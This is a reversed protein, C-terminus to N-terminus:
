PADSSFFIYLKIHPKMGLALYESFVIIIECLFCCFLVDDHAWKEDSVCTYAFLYIFLYKRVNIENWTGNEGAREGKREITKCHLYVYLYIMVMIHKYRIFLPYM